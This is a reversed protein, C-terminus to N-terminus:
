SFEVTSERDHQRNLYIAQTFGHEQMLERIQRAADMRAARRRAEEQLELVHHDYVLRYMLPERLGRNISEVRMDGMGVFMLKGFEEGNLYFTIAHKSDSYELRASGPLSDLEQIMDLASRCLDYGAQTTHAVFLIRRGSVAALLAMRITNTTRGTGRKPDYHPGAAARRQCETCNTAQHCAQNCMM